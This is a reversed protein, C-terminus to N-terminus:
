DRGPNPIEAVCIYDMGKYSVEFFLHKGDPSFDISEDGYFVSRTIVQRIGSEFDLHCIYIREGDDYIELYAFEDSEPSFSGGIIKDLSKVEITDIKEKLDYLINGASDLILVTEDSYAAVRSYDPSLEPKYYNEGLVFSRATQKNIDKFFITGGEQASYTLYRFSDLAEPLDYTSDTFAMFSDTQAFADAKWGPNKRIFLTGDPFRVPSNYGPIRSTLSTDAAIVSRDKALSIIQYTVVKEVKGRQRINSPWFVALISDSNVWHHEASFLKALESERDKTLDYVYLVRDRSYLLHRGDPSVELKDGQALVDADFWDPLDAGLGVACTCSVTLILSILITKM